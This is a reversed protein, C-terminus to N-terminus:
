RAQRALSALRNDSSSMLRRRHCRFQRNLASFGGPLRREAWTWAYASERVMRHRRLPTGDGIKSAHGVRLGVPSAEDISRPM